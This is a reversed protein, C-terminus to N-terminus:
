SGMHDWIWTWKNADLHIFSDRQQGGSEWCKPSRVAVGQLVWQNKYKKNPSVAGTGLGINCQSLQFNAPSTNGIKTKVLHVHSKMSDTTGYSHFTAITVDKDWTPPNAETFTSIPSLELETAPKLMVLENKSDPIGYQVYAFKRM